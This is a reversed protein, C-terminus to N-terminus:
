FSLEKRTKKVQYVINLDSIETEDRRYDLVDEIKKCIKFGSELVRKTRIGVAWHQDKVPTQKKTEIIKSKIFMCIIEMVSKILDKM